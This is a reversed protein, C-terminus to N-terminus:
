KTLVNIKLNIFAQEYRRFRFSTYNQILLFVALLLYPVTNPLHFSLAISIVTLICMSYILMISKARAEFGKTELVAAVVHGGDLPLIPLLNLGLLFLQIKAVFDDGPFELVLAFFLLVLTAAPGGLALYIRHKRRATLRGPIVLEGGYPMITCSRVRLGLIYACILHGAEHILLSIFILTYVSLDGSIILFLFVPLLIPHLRFKM